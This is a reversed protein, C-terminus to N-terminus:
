HDLMDMIRMEGPLLGFGLVLGTTLCMGTTLTMAPIGVAAEGM